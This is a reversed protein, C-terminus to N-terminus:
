KNYAMEETKVTSSKKLWHDRKGNRIILECVAISGTLTITGIGLSGFAADISFQWAFFFVFMALAVPLCLLKVRMLIYWFIMSLLVFSFVGIVAFYAGGVLYFWGILSTSIGTVHQPHYGLVSYKHFIEVSPSFLNKVGLPEPNAGVIPLLMEIGVFRILINMGGSTLIESLSTEEHSVISEELASYIRAEQDPIRINRYHSIIPFLLATLLIIIIFLAVRQKNIKGTILFFFGLLIFLGLLAGRSSRILMESIGHIFLLIIGINVYKRLGVQEGCWILLLLLGPILTLRAYFIWGALRFPLYVSEAGMIAIKTIYMMFGTGVILISILWMLVSILFRYNIEADSNSIMKQPHRIAVVFLWAVLCFVFFASTVLAYAKLLTNPSDFVWQSLSFWDRVSESFSVMLYFKFYYAVIFVILLTWIPLTINLPRNLVSLLLCCGFISLTTLGVYEMAFPKFFSFSFIYGGIFFLPLFWRFRYRRLTDRKFTKELM